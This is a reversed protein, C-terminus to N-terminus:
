VLFHDFRERSPIPMSAPNLDLDVKRWDKLFSVPIVGETNRSFFRVWLYSRLVETRNYIM